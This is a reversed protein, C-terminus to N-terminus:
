KKPRARAEDRNGGHRRRGMRRLSARYMEPLKEEWEDVMIEHDEPKGLFGGMLVSRDIKLRAVDPRHTLNWETGISVEAAYRSLEADFAEQEPTAIAALLPSYPYHNLYWLTYSRPIALQITTMTNRNRPNRPLPPAPM